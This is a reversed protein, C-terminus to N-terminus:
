TPRASTSPSSASWNHKPKLSAGVAEWVKTMQKKQEDTLHPDLDHAACWPRGSSIM